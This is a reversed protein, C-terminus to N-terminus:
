LFGLILTLLCYFIRFRQFLLFGDGHDFLYSTRGLTERYFGLSSNSFCHGLFLMKDILRYM